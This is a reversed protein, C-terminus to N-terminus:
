DRALERVYFWDHQPGRSTVIANPWHGTRQFGHREYFAIARTNTEAVCLELQWIGAQAAHDVLAAILLGAAGTGQAQPIVYFPGIFARHRAREFTEQRIAAIGMPTSGDFVGYRGGQAILQMDQERNVTEVENLSPLFDEPFLRVGESRLDRWIGVDAPCLQRAQMM